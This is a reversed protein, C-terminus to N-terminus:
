KNAVAEHPRSVAYDCRLLKNYLEELTLPGANADEKEEQAMIIIEDLSRQFRLFSTADHEDIGSKLMLCPKGKFPEEDIESKPICSYEGPETEVIYCDYTL